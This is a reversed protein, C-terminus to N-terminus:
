GVEPRGRPSPVCCTNSTSSWSAHTLRPSACGLIPQHYGQKDLVVVLQHVTGPQPLLLTSSCIGQHQHVHSWVIGTDVGSNTDGSIM